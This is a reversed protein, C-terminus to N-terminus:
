RANPECHMRDKLIGSPRAFRSASFRGATIFFRGSVPREEECNKLIGIYLRKIIVEYIACGM